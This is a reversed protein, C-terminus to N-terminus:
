NEHPRLEKPIKGYRNIWCSFMSDNSSRKKPKRTKNSQHKLDEANKITKTFVDKLMLSVRRKELSQAVYDIAGGTPPPRMLIESLSACNDCKSLLYRLLSIGLRASQAM